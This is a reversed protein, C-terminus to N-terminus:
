GIEVWNGNNNRVAIKKGYGSVYNLINGGQVIQTFPLEIRIHTITPRDKMYNETVQLFNSGYRASIKITDRTTQEVSQLAKFIGDIFIRFVGGFGFLTLTATSVVKLLDALLAPNENEIANTRIDFQTRKLAAFSAKSFEITKVYEKINFV